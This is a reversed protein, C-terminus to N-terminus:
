LSVAEEAAALVPPEPDQLHTTTTRLLHHHHHHLVHRVQLGLGVLVLTTVLFLAAVKVPVYYPMLAPPLPRSDANEIKKM